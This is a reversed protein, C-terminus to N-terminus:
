DATQGLHHGMGAPGDDASGINVRQSAQGGQECATPITGASARLSLVLEEPGKPRGDEWSKESRLVKGRPGITGEAEAGNLHSVFWGMSSQCQGFTAHDLPRSRLQAM